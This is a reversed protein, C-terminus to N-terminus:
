ARRPPAAPAIIAPTKPLTISSDMERLEVVTDSPMGPQPHAASVPQPRDDVSAPPSTASSAAPVSTASADLGIVTPANVDSNTPQSRSEAITEAFENNSPSTSPVPGTNLGAKLESALVAATPQLDSRDKRQERQIAESFGRPVSPVVEHLPKPVTSVHERRLEHLTKATYCRRGAIMEYFVLGLSYIVARGDIEM